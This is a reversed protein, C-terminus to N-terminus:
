EEMTNAEEQVDYGKARRREAATSGGRRCATCRKPLHLKHGTAKAKHSKYWRAEGEPISFPKDCDVCSLELHKKQPRRNSQELARKRSTTLMSQLAGEADRNFTILTTTSTTMIFTGM